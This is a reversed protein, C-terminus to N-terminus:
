DRFIIGYESELNEAIRSLIEGDLNGTFTLGNDDAEVEIEICERDVTAALQRYAQSVFHVKQNSSGRWVLPRALREVYRGDVLIDLQSLLARAGDGELDELEALTYGSYCMITLGAARVLGSLDALAASQEFPEGGTYTVGEIDKTSVILDFLEGTSLLRRPEYPLFRQNICGSCHLPCGQVWIVFRSGPGSVTSVPMLRGFNITRSVSSM